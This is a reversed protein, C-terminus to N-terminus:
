FGKQVEPRKLMVQRNEKSAIFATSAKVMQFFLSSGESASQQYCTYYGLAWGAQSNELRPVKKPQVYNGKMRLTM